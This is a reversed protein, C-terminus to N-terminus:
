RWGERAHRRHLVRLLDWDAEHYRRWDRLMSGIIVLAPVTKFWNRARM